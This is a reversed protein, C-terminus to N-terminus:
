AEDFFDEDLKMITYTRAVQVGVGYKIMLRALHEGDILVLSIGSGLEEAYGRAGSTFSSSTIFVGQTAKGHLAGVFNQLDPRSVVNDKAYRKAQVYIKSLGLADQDIIGDVGGDNSAPTVTGRGAPGGYGMALLVDVVLHEFATPSMARVRELIDHTLASEIQTISEDILEQPTSDSVETPATTVAVTKAATKPTEQPDQESSGSESRERTRASRVIHAVVDDPIGEPHAEILKLGEDSIVQQGRRPSDVAGFMKLYTLGWSIRDVYVPRKGNPLNPRLQDESLPYLEAVASYIEKNTRPTRDSLYTLICPIFEYFKPLEVETTDPSQATM